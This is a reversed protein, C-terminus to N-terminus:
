LVLHRTLTGRRLLLAGLFDACQAEYSQSRLRLALLYAQQAHLLSSDNNNEIYFKALSLHADMKTSDDSSALMRRAVATDALIQAATTAGTFFVIAFLLLGKRM